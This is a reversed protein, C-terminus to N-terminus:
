LLTSVSAAEFSTNQPNYSIDCMYFIVCTVHRVHRDCCRASNNAVKQRKLEHILLTFLRGVKPEWVLLGIERSSANYLM